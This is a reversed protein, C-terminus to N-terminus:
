KADTDEKNMDEIMKSNASRLMKQLDATNGVFISNNTVTTTKGPEQKKIDKIQKHLHILKNNAELSSAILQAVVEYARPNQSETAVELLTELAEESKEIIRKLNDRVETYDRDAETRDTKISKVERRVVEQKPEPESKPLNLANSLNDDVDSM